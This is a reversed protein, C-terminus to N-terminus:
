VQGDSLDDIRLEAARGQGQIWEVLGSAIRAAEDRGLVYGLVSNNHKIVWSRRELSVVIVDVM